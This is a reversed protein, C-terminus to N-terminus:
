VEEKGATLEHKRTNLQYHVARRIGAVAAQCAIQLEPGVELHNPSDKKTWTHNNVSLISIKEQGDFLGLSATLVGSDADYHFSVVEAHDIRIDIENGKVEIM